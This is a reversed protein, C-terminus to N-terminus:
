RYDGSGKILDREKRSQLKNINAEMVEEITLNVHSLVRSLYFLVDGAELKIKGFAENSIQGDNDRIAKKYLEMLEGVEGALGLLPYIVIDSDPNMKRPYICFREIERQYDNPTM